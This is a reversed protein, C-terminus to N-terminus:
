ILIHLYTCINMYYCNIFFSSLFKFSVLSLYIPHNLPALLLSLHLKIVTEFSFFYYFLVAVFCLLLVFLCFCHFFCNIETTQGSGYSHSKSCAELILCSNVRTTCADFEFLFHNTLGM